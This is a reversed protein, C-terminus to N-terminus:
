YLVKSLFFDAVLIALSAHVVAGTVARGVGEAGGTARFGRVCAILTFLVGFCLAKWLGSTFDEVTLLKFTSVDYEHPNAGLVWVAVARGGLIAVLDGIVLLLPFTVLGALIRPVFLHHIPDAGMAVLADIQETARMTGLEAAIASGVRGALILAGFVPMVERFVSIAVVGGTFSSARFREFGQYMQLGLVMGSFLATFAVVPVSSVGVRVMQRSIEPWDRPGQVGRLVTLGLLRSTEGVEEVFAAMGGGLRNLVGAGM